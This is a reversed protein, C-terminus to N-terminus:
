FITIAVGQWIGLVLVYTMLNPKLTLPFTRLQFSCSLQLLFIPPLSYQYHIMFLSSKLPHFFSLHVSTTIISAFHLTGITVYCM